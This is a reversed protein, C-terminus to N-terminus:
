FFLSPKKLKQLVTKTRIQCYLAYNDFAFTEVNKEKFDIFIGLCTRLNFEYHKRKKM